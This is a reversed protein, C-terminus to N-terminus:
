TQPNYTSCHSLKQLTKSALGWARNVTKVLKDILAKQLGESHTQRWSIQTYIVKLRWTGYDGTNLLGFGQTGLYQENVYILFSYSKSPNLTMGVKNMYHGVQDVHDLAGETSDALLIIADEFALTGLEQAGIGFSKEQLDRILPDLV